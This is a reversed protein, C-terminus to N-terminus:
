GNGDRNLRFIRDVGTLILDPEVSDIEPMYAHIMKALGGTAIVASSDIGLEDHIGQILGRIMEIHGRVVGAQMSEDTSKGIWHEPIKFDVMPLKSANKHLANIMSKLGLSIAGGLYVGDKHIVDLTTATGFDVVIVYDQVSEWAAVAGCIRDAGVNEPPHYDITIPLKVHSDIFFAPQTLYMDAFRELIFSLDPVVSAVAISEIQAFEIQEFKLFNRILTAIEDETNYLKSSFRWSKIRGSANVYGVETQTNGVDLLLAIKM